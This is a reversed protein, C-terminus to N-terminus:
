AGQAAAAARDIQVSNESGTRVVTRLQEVAARGEALQQNMLQSFEAAAETAAGSGAASLSKYQNLVQNASDEAGNLQASVSALAAEVAAPDNVLETM